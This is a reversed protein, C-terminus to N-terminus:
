RRVGWIMGELHMRHAHGSPLRTLMREVLRKLRGEWNCFAFLGEKHQAAAGLDIWDGPRSSPSRSGACPSATEGRFRCCERDARWFGM